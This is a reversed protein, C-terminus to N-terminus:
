GLMSMFIWIIILLFFLHCFDLYTDNAAATDGILLMQGSQFVAFVQALDNGEAVSPDLASLGGAGLVACGTGTDVLIVMVKQGIGLNLNDVDAGGVHAVALDGNGGELRFLM